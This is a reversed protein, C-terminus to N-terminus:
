YLIIILARGHQQWQVWADQGTVAEDLLIPQVQLALVQAVGGVRDLVRHRVGHAAAEETRAHGGQRM